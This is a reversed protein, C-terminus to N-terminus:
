LLRAFNKLLVFAGLIESSCYIFRKILAVDFARRKTTEIGLADNLIPLFRYNTM